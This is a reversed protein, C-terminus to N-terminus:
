EYGGQSTPVISVVRERIQCTSGNSAAEMQDKGVSDILLHEFGFNIASFGTGRPANKQTLHYINVQPSVQFTVGAPLPFSPSAYAKDIPEDKLDAPLKSTETKKYKSGDETSFNGINALVSQTSADAVYFANTAGRKNGSLKTEVTSNSMAALGVLTLVAMMVLAIVLALGSQDKVKSHLKM